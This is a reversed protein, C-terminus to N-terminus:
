NGHMPDTLQAQRDRYWELLEKSKHRFEPSNMTIRECMRMASTIQSASAGPLGASRALADLFPTHCVVFACSPPDGALAHENILGFATTASRYAEDHRGQGRLQRARKMMGFAKMQVPFLRFMSWFGAITDLCRRKM